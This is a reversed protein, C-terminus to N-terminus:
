HLKLTNCYVKFVEDKGSLGLHTPFSKHTENFSSRSWHMENKISDMKYRM